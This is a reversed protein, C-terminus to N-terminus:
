ASEQGALHKQVAALIMSDEIVAPDMGIDTRQMPELQEQAALASAWAAGWGPESCCQWTIRDTVTYVPEYGHHQEAVCAALRDRLAANRAAQSIAYYTV